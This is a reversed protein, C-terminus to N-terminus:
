FIWIVSQHKELIQQIFYLEIYKIPLIGALLLLGTSNISVSLLYSETALSTVKIQSLKCHTISQVVTQLM